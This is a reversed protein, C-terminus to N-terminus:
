STTWNIWTQFAGQWSFQWLNIARLLCIPSVALSSGSILAKPCQHMTTGELPHCVLSDLFFLFCVLWMQLQINHSTKVKAREFSFPNASAVKSSFKSFYIFFVCHLMITRCYNFNALSYSFKWMGDCFQSQIKENIEVVAFMTMFFYFCLCVVANNMKDKWIRLPALTLCLYKDSFLM